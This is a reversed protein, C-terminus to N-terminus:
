NRSRWIRRWRLRTLDILFPLLVAILAGSAGLLLADTRLSRTILGRAPTRGPFFYLYGCLAYGAFMAFLALGLILRQLGSRPGGPPRHLLYFLGYIALAVVAFAGANEIWGQIALPLDQWRLPEREIVFTAFIM